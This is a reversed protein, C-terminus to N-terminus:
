EGIDIGEYRLLYAMFDYINPYVGAITYLDDFIVLKIHLVDFIEGDFKLEGNM